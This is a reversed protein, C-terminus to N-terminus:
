TEGGENWQSASSTPSRLTPKPTLSDDRYAVVVHRRAQWEGAIAAKDVRFRGDGFRLVLRWIAAKTRLMGALEHCRSKIWEDTSEIQTKLYAVLNAGVQKERESAEPDFCVVFRQERTGEGVRVKKAESNQSVCLYRDPRVLLENVERSTNSLKKEAVM